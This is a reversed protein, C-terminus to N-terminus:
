RIRHHRPLIGRRRDNGTPAPGCPKLSVATLCSPRVATSSPAMPPRFASLVPEGNVLPVNIIAELATRRWLHAKGLRGRSFGCARRAPSAVAFGQVPRTQRSITDFVAPARGDLAPSRSPHPPQSGGRKSQTNWVSILGDNTLSNKRKSSNPPSPYSPM